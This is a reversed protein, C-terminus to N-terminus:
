GAKWCSCFKELLLVVAIICGVIILFTWQRSSTITYQFKYTHKTKCNLFYYYMQVGYICSM